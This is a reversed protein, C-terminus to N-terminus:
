KTLGNFLVIDNTIAALAVALQQGDRSWAFDVVTRDAFQTLRYPRRGDLPWVWISGPAVTDVYALNGDPTWRLPSVRGLAPLRRGGPYSLRWLQSAAGEDPPANVVLSASDLWALGALAEVLTCIGNARRVGWLSGDPASFALDGIRADRLLVRTRGADVDLCMLDRWSGNDTTYFLAREGADWALSAVTYIIPGRIPAIRDVRGDRM